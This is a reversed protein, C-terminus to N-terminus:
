RECACVCVHVRVCVRVCVRARVCARVYVCTRVCVHVRVCARVNCVCARVRARACVYVCVLVWNLTICLEAAKHFSKRIHSYSGCAAMIIMIIVTLITIMTIKTILMIIMCVAAVTYLSQLAHRYICRFM